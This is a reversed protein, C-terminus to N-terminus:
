NPPRTFARLEDQAGRRMAAEIAEATGLSPRSRDSTLRCWITLKPRRFYGDALLAKLKREVEQLTLGAIRVEGLVPFRMTGDSQVTATASWDPEDNLTFDLVDGPIVRHEAVKPDILKARMCTNFAEASEAKADRTDPQSTASAMCARAAGRVRTRSESLPMGVVVSEMCALSELANSQSSECSAAAAYGTYGDVIVAQRCAEASADLKEFTTPSQDDFRIRHAAVKLCVAKALDHRARSEPLAIELVAADYCVRFDPEGPKCRHEARQRAQRFEASPMRYYTAEAAIEIEEVIPDTGGVRLSGQEEYTLWKVKEPATAMMVDGLTDSVNMEHLYERIDRDLRRWSAGIDGVALGRADEFYPRHVGIKGYQRHAAGVFALVCSSACMGDAGVSAWVRYTRLARGITLAESVSGGPSDFVVQGLAGDKFDAELSHLEATFRDGDGRELPGTLTLTVLSSGRGGVAIEATSASGVVCLLLAACGALHQSVALFSEVAPLQRAWFGSCGVLGLGAHESQGNRLM